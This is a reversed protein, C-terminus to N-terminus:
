EHVQPFNSKGVSKVCNHLSKTVKSSKIRCDYKLFNESFNVKGTYCTEVVAELFALKVFINL